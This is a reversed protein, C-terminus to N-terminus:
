RYLLKKSDNYYIESKLILRYENKVHEVNGLKPRIWGKYILFEGKYQFRDMDIRLEEPFLEISM